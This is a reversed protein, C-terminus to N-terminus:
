RVTEHVSDAARLVKKVTRVLEAVGYPKPLMADLQLWPYRDLEEAPVTGSALIISLPMDESRVKKILELGTVGPMTNDTILVDYRSANLARWGAAGDEATDVHYGARGLVEAHLQRDDRNDDVLLIRHPPNTRGPDPATAQQETHSTQNDTM